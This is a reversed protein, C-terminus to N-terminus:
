SCGNEVQFSQKLLRMCETALCQVSLNGLYTGALLLLLLLLLLLPKMESFTSDILAAVVHSLDIFAYTKILEFFM